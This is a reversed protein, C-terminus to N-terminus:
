ENPQDADMLVLQARTKEDQFDADEEARELAQRKEVEQRWTRDSEAFSRVEAKALIPALVEVLSEDRRVRNLRDTAAREVARLYKNTTAGAPTALFKETSRQEGEERKLDNVASSFERLERVFEKTTDDSLPLMEANKALFVFLTYFDTKNRFRTRRLDSACKELQSFARGFRQELDTLVGAPVGQKEYTLFLEDLGEKKNPFANSVLAYAIEGMLEDSRRRLYDRATFVGIETLVEAGAAVEVFQLLEGTYAAHRLEQPMLPEVTKNLRRFIERLVDIGLDPLRRVILEYSRFRQRLNEDLEPFIRNRWRVDLVEKGSLRLRGALFQLCASIRQQGDVIIIKEGGDATTTQQSYIEPVPLGRLISDILFSKQEDNWVLNRQFPPRLQLSRAARYKQFQNITTNSVTSAVQQAFEIETTEM